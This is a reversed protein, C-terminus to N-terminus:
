HFYRNWLTEQNRDLFDGVAAIMAAIPTTVAHTVWLCVM